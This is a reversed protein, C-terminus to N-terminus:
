CVRCPICRALLWAVEEKTIGYYQEIIQGSTKNISGHELELHNAQILEFSECTCVVYKAPKDLTAKEM